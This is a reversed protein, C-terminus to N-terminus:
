QVYLANQLHVKNKIVALPSDTALTTMHPRARAYSVLRHATPLTTVPATDVSNHDRGLVASTMFTHDSECHRRWFAGRRCNIGSLRAIPRIYKSPYRRLQNAFVIKNQSLTTTPTSSNDVALNSYALCEATKRETAQKRTFVINPSIDRPFHSNDSAFVACYPSSAMVAHVMNLQLLNYLPLTPSFPSSLLTSSGASVLCNTYLTYMYKLRRGPLVALADRDLVALAVISGLSM